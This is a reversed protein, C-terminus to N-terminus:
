LPALARAVHLADAAVDRAAGFQAVEFRTAGVESTAFGSMRGFPIPVIDIAHALRVEQRGTSM